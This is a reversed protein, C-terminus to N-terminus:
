CHKELHNSARTFRGPSSQLSKKNYGELVSDIGNVEAVSEASEEDGDDVEDEDEDEYVDEDEDM